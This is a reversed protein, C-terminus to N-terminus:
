DELDEQDPSESSLIMTMGENYYSVREKLGHLNFNDKIYDEDM